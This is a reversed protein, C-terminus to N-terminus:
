KVIVGGWELVDFGSRDMKPIAQPSPIFTPIEETMPKVLLYFRAVVDPKPDIKLKAFREAEENFVFHIFCNPHKVLQPGWYTLLDAKEISNFGFQDCINGLQEVVNDRTFYYGSRDNFGLSTFDQEAEWFLYRNNKGDVLINGEPDAVVKWSDKENFLPYVFQFEGKPIVQVEIASEKEPYLYIVPKDVMIEYEAMRWFIDISIRHGGKAELSDIYVEYMDPLYLQFSVKGAKSQVYFQFNENMKAEGVQENVSYQVTYNRYVPDLNMSRFVFMTQDDPVSSDKEVSRVIYLTTLDESRCYASLSIVIFLISFITKM